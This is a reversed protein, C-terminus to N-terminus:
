FPFAFDFRYKVVFVFINAFFCMCWSQLFMFGRTSLCMVHVSRYMYAQRPPHVSRSILVRVKFRITVMGQQNIISLGEDNTVRSWYVSLCPANCHVCFFAFGM